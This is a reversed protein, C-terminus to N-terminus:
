QVNPLFVFVFIALFTHLFVSFPFSFLSHPSSLFPLSVNVVVGVVVVTVAVATVAVAAVTVAVAAVTIAAVAGAAIAVAAVAVAVVAVAVPFSIGSAGFTDSELRSDPVTDVLINREFM